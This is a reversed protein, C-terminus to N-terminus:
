VHEKESEASEIAKLATHYVDDFLKIEKNIAKINDISRVMAYTGFGFVASLGSYEIFRSAVFDTGNGIAKVYATVLCVTFVIHVVIQVYDWFKQRKLPKTCNTYNEKLSDKTM